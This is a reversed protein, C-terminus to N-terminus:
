TSSSTDPPCTAELRLTVQVNGCHDIFTPNITKTGSVACSGPDIPPDPPVPTPTAPPGPVWVQVEGSVDDLVYIRDGLGMALDAPEGPTFFRAVLTGDPRHVRILGDSFLIAVLVAGDAQVILPPETM